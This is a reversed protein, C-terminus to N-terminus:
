QFPRWLGVQQRLTNGHGAAVTRIAMLLAIERLAQLEESQLHLLPDALRPARIRGQGGSFTTTM